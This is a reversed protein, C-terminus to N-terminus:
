NQTGNERLSPVNWPGELSSNQILITYPGKRSATNAPPLPLAPQSAICGVMVSQLASTKHKWTREGIHAAKDWCGYRGKSAGNIRYVETLETCHRPWCPSQTPEEIAVGYM